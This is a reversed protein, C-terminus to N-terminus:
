GQTMHGFGSHFRQARGKVSDSVTALECIDIFRALEVGSAVCCGGWCKERLKGQAQTCAGTDAQVGERSQLELYSLETKKQGLTVTSHASMWLIELDESVHVGEGTNKLGKHVRGRRQGKGM